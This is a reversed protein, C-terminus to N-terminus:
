FLPHEFSLYLLAGYEGHSTGIGMPFSLGPVVQLGSKYNKAFRVGPNVFFSEERLKSGGTQVAEMSTWVIETMVNFTENALWIVSGGLNYAWADATSGGPEAADPTFTAGANWHTVWRHGIEVSVPLNAQYGTAGSGMGKKEDGTPLILSFRPSVALPGDMILQYRYNIAIDSLGTKDGEQLHAVPITYSLQHAQKPVPWEQTFSYLWDRTKKNYVYSQIHQIVGDEQNYAEELLFSNDQIKAPGESFAAQPLCVMVALICSQVITRMM